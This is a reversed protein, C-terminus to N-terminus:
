VRAEEIGASGVTFAFAGKPRQAGRVKTLRLVTVDREDCSLELLNDALGGLMERVEDGGTMLVDRGGRALRRLLARTFDMRREPSTAALLTEMGDLVVRRAEQSKRLVGHGVLDPRLELVEPTFARVGSVKVGLAEARALALEAGEGLSVFLAGGEAGGGAAFRAALQTKGSGHPGTLLTVSGTPVGGGLWADLAKVGFASRAGPSPLATVPAVPDSEAELRLYLEFGDNGLQTFHQGPIHRQGRVKVVELRRERRMGTQEFPLTVVGDVTAAEPAELIREPNAELTLVGTCDNSSLGVGIESLFERIQSEDRWVDRLSRLGDVVLLSARQERVSSLLMERTERVGRRLWPYISLLFIDRGVREREFFSFRQLTELVKTHPESAATALLVPAGRSAQAFAIQSALITKGSGPQGAVLLVQRPPIGGGLARDLAAIGTTLLSGNPSM